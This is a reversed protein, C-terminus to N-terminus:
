KSSTRFKSASQRAAVLEDAKMMVVRNRGSAKAAYLARDAVALLSEVSRSGGSPEFVMAGMSCAVTFDRESTHIALNSISAHLGTLRVETADDPIENIVFLFEEGGFRGAHDYPRVAARVASAFRRLAEDGALHGYADNVHKFNDLDVLAVVLTRRERVARDIEAALASLIAARNLLGTLGDHTAQISLQERSAELEQTRKFVLRELERSKRRLHREYLRNAAVISLLLALGCLAYFWNSGWWPPLIEISIKLPASYVGLGPNRAMALFTYRGPPLASFVASGDRTNVWDPQLGDMRYRFFLESRNRVASSSIQLNLPLPSWPLTIGAGCSQYVEDGRRIATLSVMMPIMDFVREPHLLHAVGGSTGIWLSGDPGSRIAGQNVDNWILGSEQTLHRWDRGNWVMVGLDTGLWVWGRRDVLIALPNLWRLEPPLVLQTAELRGAKPALRWTGDVDGTVWVAGDPACSLALFSGHVNRFGDIAPVTWRGGNLHVLRQRSVFWLSGDPSECGADVRASDGLLPDLATVRKPAEAGTERLYLGQKTAFFDRGSRDQLAGIIFAPLRATEVTRGTKADISLVAGSFTGALLSGDPNMGMAGVEGFSWKSGKTMPGSAGTRPDIWAPGNETGVFVRGERTPTTRWVVASPLGQGDSWGEWYEYGTWLHLGDGRSSLWLDGSADLAIGSTHNTRPLGNARGIRRWGSGDWRAIGDEAPAVIRGERDEVLPAHGLTSEPDSGPISRDVFRRSGAALVAIHHVGAAWVNGKRDLIVNQWEDEPLGKDSGWEEVEDYYIQTRGDPDRDVWTFLKKGCGIWIRTGYPPESVVSVSSVRGLEPILATMWEPIVTQFSLMRGAGDHGLRRLHGHDVILLHNADEAAMQWGSTISLRKSSAPLFRRGDWSYVNEETAVWIKGGPDSVVKYVDPEAIGQERGYPEFGSGVFRYVGNETAVWLFGQPDTTLSNVALNELGQPQQYTRFVYQQTQGAVSLAAACVLVWAANLRRM